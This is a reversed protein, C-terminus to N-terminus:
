VFEWNAKAEVSNKVFQAFEKVYRVESTSIAGIHQQIHKNLIAIQKADLQGDCDSHLFFENLVKSDEIDKFHLTYDESIPNGTFHGFEILKVLKRRLLGFGIYGINFREIIAKIEANEYQEVLEHYKKEDLAFQEPNDRYAFDFENPGSWKERPDEVGIKGMALITLGM